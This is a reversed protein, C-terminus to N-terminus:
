NSPRGATLLAAAADGVASARRDVADPDALISKVAAKVKPFDLVNTGNVYGSIWDPPTFGVTIMNGPRSRAGCNSSNPCAGLPMNTKCARRRARIRDQPVAADAQVVSNQYLMAMIVCRQRGMRVYDDSDSRDRAFALAELGNLHNVGVNFVYTKKEEGANLPAYTIHLAEQSQHQHRGGCRGHRGPGDHEVVAYYDIPIGLILSATEM